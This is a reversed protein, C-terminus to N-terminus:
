AGLTVEIRAKAHLKRAQESTLPRGPRRRRAQILEAEGPDNALRGPSPRRPLPSDSGVRDVAQTPTM